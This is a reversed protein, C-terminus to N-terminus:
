HKIKNLSAFTCRNSQFDIDNSDYFNIIMMMIIVIIILFYTINNIIIIRM